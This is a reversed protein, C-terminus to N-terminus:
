DTSQVHRQVRVDGCAFRFELLRHGGRYTHQGTALQKEFTGSPPVGQPEVPFQEVGDIQLSVIPYAANDVFRTVTNGAPAPMQVTNSPASDPSQGHTNYARIKYTYSHGPVGEIYGGLLNGQNWTGILAYGGGNDSQYLHYGDNDDPNVWMLLLTTSSIVQLSLFTPAHPPHTTPTSGCAPGTPTSDGNANHARVRFCYFTNELLGNIEAGITNPPTNGELNWTVGDRSSEVVFATENTSNDTWDLGLSDTLPAAPNLTSVILGDPAAPVAGTATTVADALNSYGSPGISNYARVRFTYTTGPTLGTVITSTVNVGVLKNQGFTTGGVGTALEIKFGDENSAKDSWALNISTTSGTAAGLQAPAEPATLPAIANTYNNVVLPLYVKGSGRYVPSFESTNSFEGCPAECTQLTVNTPLLGNGLATSWVGSANATIEYNGVWNAGGGNAIPNGVAQYIYM